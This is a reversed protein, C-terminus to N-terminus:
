VVLVGIQVGAVAALRRVDGADSTVLTDCSRGLSVIAADVVDSSGAGALLLGIRRARAPDLSYEVVGALARTLLAQRAPDRWVQAVCTVCTRVEIGDRAALELLAGVRRDRRELAILGGSDLVLAAM